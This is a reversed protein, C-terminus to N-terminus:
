AIKSWQNGIQNQVRFILSEEEESWPKDKLISPDLHNFWRERCQRGTKINNAITSVQDGIQNWTLKEANQEDYRLLFLKKILEDEKM